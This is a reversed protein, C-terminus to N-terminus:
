ESQTNGISIPQPRWLLEQESCVGSLPLDWPDTPLREVLEEAFCIGLSPVAAWAPDSQLRDYYGAGYGLRYGLRDGGLMPVLILDVTSPDLQAAEAAPSPIGYCDRVLAAPDARHMTMPGTGDCRPLGWTKPTTFLATLDVEGRIPWYGVVTRAQQWLPFAQLRTAIAASLRQREEPPRQRRQELFRQRLAPKSTM